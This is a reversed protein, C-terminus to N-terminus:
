GTLWQALRIWTETKGIVVRVFGSAVLLMGGWLTAPHLRGLTRLDYFLMPVMFVDALGYTFFPGQNRIVPFRGVPNSLLEATALLLLRKHSQGRRRLLLGTAALAGFVLASSMPVWLFTVPIRGRQVATIGVYPGSLTIAATLVAGIIGLRRHLDTRRNAILATQVVLLLIWSTALAAHLHVLVPFRPHGFFTALYYSPAFGLFTTVAALASMAFYFRHERKQLFSIALRKESAATAM